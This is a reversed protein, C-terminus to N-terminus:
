GKASPGYYAALLDVVAGYSKVGLSQGYSKLFGEYASNAAKSLHTDQYQAWYANNDQLDAQVRPDLGHYIADWLGKDEGYLANSLHIYALLAGSYEYWVDGSEQCAVVALFNATQEPAIGRVHALEHAVTAPLLCMPANVNLNAEGTFPFFFGTFQIASMVESFVMAKPRVQPGQLFPWRRELATYLTDGRALVEESSVAFIGNEDRPVSGATRNLVAAFYGTTDNLEEVTIAQAYIGSQQEFTPAYYNLGWLFTYGLYVALAIAAAGALRRWLYLGRGQKVKVARYVTRAAYWVCFLVLAAWCVEAMSFPLYSCVTGMLRKYPGTVWTCLLAAAGPLAMALRLLLYAGGLWLLALYEKKMNRWHARWREAMTM